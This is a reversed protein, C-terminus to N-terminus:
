ITIVRKPKNSPAQSPGSAERNAINSIYSKFKETRQEKPLVEFSQVTLIDEANLAKPFEYILTLPVDLKALTMYGAPMRGEEFIDLTDVNFNTVNDSM